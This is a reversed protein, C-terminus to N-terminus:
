WLLSRDQFALFTTVVSVIQQDQNLDVEFISPFVLFRALSHLSKICEAIWYQKLINVLAAFKKESISMFNWMELNTGCWIDSKNQKPWKSFKLPLRQFLTSCYFLNTPKWPQSFSSWVQYDTRCHICSRQINQCNQVLLTGQLNKSPALHVYPFRRKVVTEKLNDWIGPGERRQYWCRNIQDGHSVWENVAEWFM